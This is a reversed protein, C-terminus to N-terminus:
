LIEKAGSNDSTIVSNGVQYGSTEFIARKLLELDNSEIKFRTLKDMSLHHNYAGNAHNESIVGIGTNLSLLSIRKDSQITIPKKGEGDSIPYVIFEQPKRMGKIKMDFSITGMINEHINEIEAPIVQFITSM